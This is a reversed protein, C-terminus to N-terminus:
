KTRASVVKSKQKENWIRNKELEIKEADPTNAAVLRVTGCRECYQMKAEGLPRAFLLYVGKFNVMPIDYFKHKFYPMECM